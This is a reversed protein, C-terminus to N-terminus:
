MLELLRGVYEIVLPHERQDGTPPAGAYPEGLYWNLTQLDDTAPEGFIGHVRETAHPLFVNAEARLARVDVHHVAREREERDGFYGGPYYADFIRRDLERQMAKFDATKLPSPVDGTLAEHADHLLAALRWRRLAEEDDGGLIPVGAPASARVLEDCYLSHDLVSWWVRTQGGFRPQRSMGVAIDMLSPYGGDTTLLRDTFTLVLM